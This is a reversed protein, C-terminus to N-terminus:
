TNKRSIFKESLLSLYRLLPEAVLAFIVLLLICEINMSSMYFLEGAFIACALWGVILSGILIYHWTSMPRLLRFLIMFGIVSVLITCATSLSEDSIHLMNCFLVMGSVTLFDTIGAPLARAFINTLFKGRILNKNPELSLLFAPIGITFMAILSVQAPKMPYSYMALMSFLSLLLSFINKVLFLGASREINNVVRRGEGVVEPMKSFDSDVLVLQSVQSAAESGSAMAISCNAEKLALVDNVGDGTMGVTKGHEKLAMIIKRKQEPVVRGFVNYVEVAEYIDEDTKLNAADVYREAYKIGAEGAIRSVTVPNDGSIVKVEVGQNNFYEFTEKATPRIPNSLLVFGLADASETLEGGNLRGNYRAFVLVRFGEKGFDDVMDKYKGFGSGLVFEPAGIVLSQGGMNVGSYKYQSSFSFVDDPKADTVSTFFEKVAAMTINDSDMAAAVNSILTMVCDHDNGGVCVLRDVKMEPETITGTKDVCLVDVRALTEICKMNRILVKKRALRMISVVMAISALLYLGEPIMGIVAAVMGTVSERFTEGAFFMQQIFLVLGIPIIIVGVIKVLKDLSRIMESQEERKDKTAELTLKSVYSNKGVHTLRATCKGSVVFSGSLLEDGPKKEIEEAEGTILAENLQASGSVIVADAPIQSGATFEVLDDLVLQEVPVSILQGDRIVSAKPDSIIKLKDLAAKSRFEQIIGIITNFFIVGLFTMDRFSGVIFLLAALVLFILNFYTFVNSKVIESRTRTSSDVAENVDGNQIRERVQASTLGNKDSIVTSAPM